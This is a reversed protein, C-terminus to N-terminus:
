CTTKALIYVIWINLCRLNIIKINLKTAQQRRKTQLITSTKKIYKYFTLDTINNYSHKHQSKLSFQKRYALVHCVAKVWMATTKSLQRLVM